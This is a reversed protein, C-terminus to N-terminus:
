AEKTADQTLLYRKAIVLMVIVHRTAIDTKPKSAVAAIAGSGSGSGSGAEIAAHM